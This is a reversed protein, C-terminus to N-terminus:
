NNQNKQEKLYIKKYKKSKVSGNYGNKVKLENSSGIYWKPLKTGKYHTLYVVYKV